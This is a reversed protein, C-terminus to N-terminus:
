RALADTLGYLWDSVRAASEGTAPAPRNTGIVAPRFEFGRVGSRDLAVLLVGSFASPLGPVAHDQEDFDFVFNGLSYAIVGDGYYEIAQLVHPGSGLVLSAGADIAAHALDRQVGDVEGSYEVGAHLYVIVVDAVRATATVDAAIIDAEGWAIGPSTPGAEQESRGYAPEEYFAGYALFAIRMGRRRVIVPAHAADRGRGAGVALVGAQGLADLTDVLGEAGFDMAHNNASSVVTFGADRLGVVAGPPARFTFGKPAATGRESLVCELNGFVIDARLLGDAEAFPYGPGDEAIGEGVTRSLMVDGVAALTVYDPPPLAVELAPVVGEPARLAVWRENLPYGGANPALADVRLAKAGRAPGDWVAITFAGSPGPKDALADPPSFGGAEDRAPQAALAPGAVESWDRVEGSALALADDYTLEELRFTFPVFVGLPREVLTAAGDPANEWPEIAAVAFSARGTGVADLADAISGEAVVDGLSGIADGLTSPMAEPHVVAIPGLIALPTVTSTAERPRGPRPTLTTPATATGAARTAAPAGDDCGSAFAAVLVALVLFAFPRLLRRIM